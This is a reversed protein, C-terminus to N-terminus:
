TLYLAASIKKQGRCTCVFLWVFLHVGGCVCVFMLAYVCICVRPIKAQFDFVFKYGLLVVLLYNLLYFFTFHGKLYLSCGISM